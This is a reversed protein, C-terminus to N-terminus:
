SVHMRDCVLQLCCGLLVNLITIEHDQIDSAMANSGTSPSHEGGDIETGIVLEADCESTQLVEKRDELSAVRATHIVNGPIRTPLRQDVHIQWVQGNGAGVVMNQKGARVSTQRVDPVVM